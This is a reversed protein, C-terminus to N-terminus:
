NTTPTMAVSVPSSGPAVTTNTAGDIVTVDNSGYNAVYIRNTVSNV